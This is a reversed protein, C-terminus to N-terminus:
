RNFVFEGAHFDRVVIDLLLLSMRRGSLVARCRLM